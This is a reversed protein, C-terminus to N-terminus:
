RLCARCGHEPDRRLVAGDALGVVLPAARHQGVDDVPHKALLEDALTGVPALPEPMPEPLEVARLLERDPEEPDDVDGQPIELSANEPHRDVPQEPGVAVRDGRIRRGRRERRGLLVEVDGILAELEAERRDLEVRPTVRPGVGIEALAQPGVDPGVDVQHVVPGRAEIQRIRDIEAVREGLGSVAPVLLRHALEAHGRIAPKGLADFTGSSTPSVDSPLWRLM